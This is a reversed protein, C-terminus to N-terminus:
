TLASQVDYHAMSLVVGHRAKLSATLIISSIETVANSLGQPNDSLRSGMCAKCVTDKLSKCYMPSRVIVAQDLYPGPDDTPALYVWGNGKRISRGLLQKATAKTFIRKLGRQTGCDEEVINFNGIARLLIKATTGGKETEKARVYAAARANNMLATFQQPDKPWGEDLANPVVPAMGGEEFGLNSGMTLYMNKRAIDKVKGSLLIGNSPDDKLWEEDYDKLAKEFAALVTPDNLQNEYQKLLQAKFADRGAPAVINKPTAAYVCLPSLAELFALHKSFALMEDVYFVADDRAEGPKPTDSLTKAITEEIAGVKIRGTIFPYKKGFAEVLCIWNVLLNGVQTNVTGTANPCWTEDIEVSEQFRFLAQGAVSDKIPQVSGDEPNVYRYGTPSQILRYPYPDQLYDEPGEQILSVASIIWALKRYCKAQLALKLYQWRDM